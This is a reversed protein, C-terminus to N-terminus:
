FKCLLLTIIVDFAFIHINDETEGHSKACDIPFHINVGCSSSLAKFFSISIQLCVISTSYKRSFVFNSTILTISHSGSFHFYSPYM